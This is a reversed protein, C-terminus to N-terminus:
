KRLYHFVDKWDVSPTQGDMMDKQDNQHQRLARREFYNEIQANTFHFTVLKRWIRQESTLPGATEPWAERCAEIDKHDSLRLLVERVVEEPM